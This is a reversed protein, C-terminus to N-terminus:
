GTRHEDFTFIMRRASPAAAYVPEEETAPVPPAHEMAVAAMPEPAEETEPMDAGEADPGSPDEEEQPDQEAEAQRALEEVHALMGKGIQYASQLNEIVTAADTFDEGYDVLGDLNALVPNVRWLCRLARTKLRAPVADSLFRSFDEGAELTEPEPLGLEELLEADSKGAQQTELEAAAQAAAQREGDRAEAAVAARRRSWADM